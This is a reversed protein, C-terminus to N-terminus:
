FDRLLYSSHLPDKKFLVGTYVRERSIVVITLAGRPLLRFDLVLKQISLAKTLM